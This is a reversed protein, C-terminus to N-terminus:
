LIDSRVEPCLKPVFALLLESVSFAAGGTQQPQCVTPLLYRLFHHRASSHGRVGPVTGPNRARPGAAARDQHRLTQRCAQQGQCCRCGREPETSRCAFNRVYSLRCLTLGLLWTHYQHLNSEGSLSPSVPLNGSLSPPLSFLPPPTPPSFSLLLSLPSSFSVSLSFPPSLFVSVPHPPPPPFLSLSLPPPLFLFLPLSLSPSVSLPLSVCLSLLSLTLSLSQSLCLCVCLSVPPLCLSCPLSLPSVCLSFPPSVCLSLSLCLSLSPSPLCVSLSLSLCLFFLHWGLSKGSRGADQLQIKLLEMPTTIIIQCLGAGMGSLVERPLTLQGSDHCTRCPLSSHCNHKVTMDSLVTCCNEQCCWSAVSSDQCTQCPLSLHCNHKVTMDSLVTCCNEQCCWSAVSSDHCTQCPLSLHCNHKVTMDSLVTCCSHIITIGGRGM